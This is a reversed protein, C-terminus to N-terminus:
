CSRPDNRRHGSINNRSRGTGEGRLCIGARRGAPLRQQPAGGGRGRYDAWVPPCVANERIITREGPTIVKWDNGAAGPGADREGGTLRLRGVMGPPAAGPGPLFGGDNVKARFCPINASFEPM